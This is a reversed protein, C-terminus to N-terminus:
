VEEQRRSRELVKKCFCRKGEEGNSKEKIRRLLFQVRAHM